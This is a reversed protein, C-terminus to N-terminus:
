LFEGFPVMIALLVWEHARGDGAVLAFSGTDQFSSWSTHHYRYWCPHSAVPGLPPPRLLSAFLETKTCEVRGPAQIEESDQWSAEWRLPDGLLLKLVPDGGCQLERPVVLYSTRLLVLMSAGSAGAQGSFVSCSPTM